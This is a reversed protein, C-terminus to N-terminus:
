LKSKSYACEGQIYTADICRDDGMIMLIFLKDFITQANRHRQRMLPTCDFDIVVFDAEKGPQLNGLKDDL